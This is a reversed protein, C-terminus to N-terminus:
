AGKENRQAIAHLVCRKIGERITVPIPPVLNLSWARRTSLDFDRPEAVRGGTHEIKVVSAPGTVEAVVDRVLMALLNITTRPLAASLNLAPSGLFLPWREILDLYVRVLDDVYIFERSQAGTGHVLIPGGSLACDIMTPIVAGHPGSRQGPGYVNCPRVIRVDLGFEHVYANVLRDAALKTAGYVHLPNMPAFEDQAVGFMPAGYVECTSIHLLRPRRSDPQAAAYARFAELVNQTGRINVLAALQPDERCAEPNAVAAMHVIVDPECGNITAALTSLSAISGWVISLSGRAHGDAVDQDLVNMIRVASQRSRISSQAFVTVDHQSKLCAATLASGQFGLGGTLLMNM